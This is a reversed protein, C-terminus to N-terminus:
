RAPEMAGFAPAIPAPALTVGSELPFLEPCLLHRSVGTAAEVKLVHKPPLAKGLRLWKWVAAQTVECLRAMASQSGVIQVALRLAGAPTSADVREIVM